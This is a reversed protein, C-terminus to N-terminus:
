TKRHISWSLSTIADKQYLYNKATRLLNKNGYKCDQQISTRCTTRHMYLSVPVQRPPTNGDKPGACVTEVNAEVDM